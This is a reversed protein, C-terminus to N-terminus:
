FSSLKGNTITLTSRGNVLVKGLGVVEIQCRSCVQKQVSVGNVTITSTRGQEFIKLVYNKHDNNQVDVAQATGCIAVAALVLAISGQKTM